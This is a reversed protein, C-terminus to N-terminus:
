IEEDLKQLQLLHSSASGPKMDNENKAPKKPNWSGRKLKFVLLAIVLLVLMSTSVSILVVHWIALENENQLYETKTQSRRDVTVISSFLLLEKEHANHSAPSATVNIQTVTSSPTEPQSTLILM